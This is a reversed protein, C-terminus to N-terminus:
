VVDDILLGSLGSIEDQLDKIKEAMKIIKESPFQSIVESTKKDFVTIVTKGSSNDNEFSVDKMSNQAFNSVLNLAEEIKTEGAEAEEVDNKEVDEAKIEEIEAIKSENSKNLAFEQGSQVQKANNEASLDIAAKPHSQSFSTVQGVDVSPPLSNVNNGM